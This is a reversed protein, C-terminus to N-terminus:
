VLTVCLLIILLITFFPSHPRLALDTCAVLLSHSVVANAEGGPTEQLGQLVQYRWTWSLSDSSGFYQLTWVHSALSPFLAGLATRLAMLDSLAPQWRLCRLESKYSAKIVTLTM